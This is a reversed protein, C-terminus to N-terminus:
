IAARNDFEYIIPIYSDDCDMSRRIGGCSPWDDCRKRPMGNGTWAYLFSYKRIRGCCPCKVDIPQQEICKMSSEIKSRKAAINLRHKKKCEDSCITEKGYKPTFSGECVICVRKSREVPERKAYESKAKISKATKYCEDSCYRKKHTAIEKGCISCFRIGIDEIRKTRIIANKVSSKCRTSCYKKGKNGVFAKGCVECESM